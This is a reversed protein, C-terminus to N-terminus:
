GTEWLLYSEYVKKRPFMHSGNETGSCTHKHHDGLVIPPEPIETMSGLQPEYVFYEYVFVAM